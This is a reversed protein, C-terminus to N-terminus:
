DQPSIVISNIVLGQEDCIFFHYRGTLPIYGEFIAKQQVPVKECLNWFLQREVDYCGFSIYRTTQDDLSLTVQVPAHGELAWAGDAAGTNTYFTGEGRPITHRGAWGFLTSQSEFYVPTLSEPTALQVAADANQGPNASSRRQPAVTGFVTVTGLALLLVFCIAIRSPRRYRVLQGLRHKLKKFVSLSQMAATDPQHVTALRLLLRGYEGSCGEGCRDLVAEDCTCEMDQQTLLLMAWMLPHFWYFATLVLLFGKFLVDCRRLHTREHTLVLLQQAPSLRDFDAPLLLTPRFVGLLQPSRVAKCHALRVKAPLDAMDRLAQQQANTLPVLPGLRRRVLLQVAVFCVAAVAFGIGWTLVPLATDAQQVPPEMNYFPEMMYYTHVTTGPSQLAAPAARELLPLPSLTLVLWGATVYWLWMIANSRLLGRLLCRLGICIGLVATVLLINQVSLFNM